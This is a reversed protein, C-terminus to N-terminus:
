MLGENHFANTLEIFNILTLREPRLQRSIGTQNLVTEIRERVEPQKGFIGQLNNWLSKRRHAFCGKVFGFLAKDEYPNVPLAERPTLRIIASDVNPQPIFATRPVDFAVEVHARYQMVVSLSGYAKTGPQAVLRDAVEAQMMVVIAAFDVTSQLVSMLIPTTIYYPLNAILKVPHGPEFESAVVAPLNAQLIDENIVKVNDYDMLTEDLVPLLNEDIEFAVVKRARKAIQETLAGIGPGIEIVNDQDTVDGAAVINRLINLDSLFNQGLSKKAVLHYRNLIAKTRAPSGIEPVENKM